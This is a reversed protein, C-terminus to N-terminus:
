GNTTNGAQFQTKRGQILNSMQSKNQNKTNQQEKIHLLFLLM